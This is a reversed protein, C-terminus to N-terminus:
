VAPSPVLRFRNPEQAWSREAAEHASAPPLLFILPQQTPQKPIPLLFLSDPAQSAYSVEWFQSVPFSGSAPFSQLCSSFPVVSSSITSPTVSEISMLRLLSRSSTISLSAQHAATWLTEFLQIHSLSQVSSPLMLRAPLCGLTGDPTGHLGRM